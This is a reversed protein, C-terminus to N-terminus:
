NVRTPKSSSPIILELCDTSSTPLLLKIIFYPYHHMTRRGSRKDPSVAEHQDDRYLSVYANRGEQLERINDKQGGVECLRYYSSSALLKILLNLLDEVEDTM